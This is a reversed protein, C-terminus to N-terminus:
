QSLKSDYGTPGTIFAASSPGHFAFTCPPAVMVTSGDGESVDHWQADDRFVQEAVGTDQNGCIIVHGVDDYACSVAETM